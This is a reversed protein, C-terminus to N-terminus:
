SERLDIGQAQVFDTLWDKLLYTARCDDENYTVISELLQRDGTQLWQSYWCISQAGNSQPDRWEFGLWRAILKLTYNEIPLITGHTVWKHLDVFRTLLPKLVHTPTHYLQGLREVTQTEYACFHFIPATPYRYVLELFQQWVLAEDEPREALLPHFTDTQQQRDVVLVGHLYALNLGPEAEIDFYLEIPATPLPFNAVFNALHEQPLPQKNKVAQAQRILKSAVEIGFGPLAELTAPDARTLSELTTLNQSQLIAYRSATVGPLLSLHQQAQAIGYCHDFWTCLSCHNRAIFVEPEQQYNLIQILEALAEQMHPLAQWLDVCYEGKERLRLWATEPWAGQMAALVYVHYSLIIQYELKPRRSLKIDTPVYLWDGFISLGPQKTLLDPNSVLMLGSPDPSLLVGQHIYEVGQQMLELTAKAGAAWDGRQYIPKVWDYESLVTQQHAQSDAMLKLLFDSAAAKQTADGYVDLYARRSCRLYNLFLQATLLM